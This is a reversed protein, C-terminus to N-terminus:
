LSVHNNVGRLTGPRRFMAKSFKLRRACAVLRSFGARVVRYCSGFIQHDTHIYICLGETSFVIYQKPYRQTDKSGSRISKPYLLSLFSLFFDFFLCRLFLTPTKTVHLRHYLNPGRTLDTSGETSVTAPAPAPLAPLAKFDFLSQRQHHRTSRSLFM